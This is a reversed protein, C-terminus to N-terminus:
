GPLSKHGSGAVRSRGKAARAAAALDDALRVEAAFRERDAEAVLAAFTVLRSGARLGRRLARVEGRPYSRWRFDLAARADACAKEILGLGVLLAADAVDDANREVLRDLENRATM